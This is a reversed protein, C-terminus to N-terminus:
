VCPPLPPPPLKRRNSTGHTELGTFSGTCLLFVTAERISETTYSAPVVPLGAVTSKTPFRQRQGQGQRDQRDRIQGDLEGHGCEAVGERVCEYM